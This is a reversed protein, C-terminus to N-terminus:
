VAWPPILDFIRLIRFISYSYEVLISLPTSIDQQSADDDRPWPCLDTGSNYADHGYVDIKKNVKPGLWSFTKKCGGFKDDRRIYM